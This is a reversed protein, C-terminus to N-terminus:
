ESLYLNLAQLAAQAAQEPTIVGNCCDSLQAMVMNRITRNTLAPTTLNNVWTKLEQRRSADPYSVTLMIENGDADSTGFMDNSVRDEKIETDFINKNVPFGTTLDKAQVADSLMFSLFKEALAVSNSTSLIGMIRRPMFVHSAQVDLPIMAYGDLQDDGALGYAWQNMGDLTGPVIYQTGGLVLLGGVLGTYDGATYYKSVEAIYAQVESANAERYPADLAYLKQMADYFATLKGADLTGDANMWAASCSDYFKDAMSIPLVGNLVTNALTNEAQAQTMATILSDLDRIQSVIHSPGYIAPIAFSTPVAYVAGNTEYCHTIQELLPASQNLVHSVDALLGKETYTEISFGDLRIMDPGNGALIETNLTRIADAETIGDQGSMGVEMKVTVEPNAKQFQSIM